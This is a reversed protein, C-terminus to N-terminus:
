IGCPIQGGYSTGSELNCSAANNLNRLGQRERDWERRTKCVRYYDALTGTRLFRRCIMEDAPGAAEAARSRRQTQASAVTALALASVVALTIMHRM